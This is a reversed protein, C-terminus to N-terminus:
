QPEKFIGLRQQQAWLVESAAKMDENLEEAGLPEAIADVCRRLDDWFRLALKVDEIPQMCCPFRQLIEQQFSQADGKYELFFRVVIGMCARPLMFTPLLAPTTLHDAKQPTACMFGPPLLKARALDKLLVSALSAEVLQRLTRKLIRVLSHFAALDFDVDANWMDNRLKMPVLSMVRGLLLVAKVRPQVPSTPYEVQPPFPREAQAADFPEGSLVGFKMMELAVLCSEQLNRPTDKLVNGLVTMGGDESSILELNELVMFHVLAALANANNTFSPEGPAQLDTVLQGDNQFEFAHWNLCFKFDVKDCKQRHMEAQVAREDIAWKLGRRISPCLTRVEQEEQPMGHGGQQRAQHADWFAKWTIEKTHFKPHMHRAIMGLATSRYDQIDNLLCRFEATDVLPHSKDTWEGKALAQPLKHSIVGHLMLYYLSNPLKEGMIANFDFPVQPASNASAGLPRIVQDHVHLVPSNQVLVKCTCYGDVHDNKMDETPFTQMWNILPAHKIIYVAADFNFRGPAAPQFHGLNLYPYTLCYETGALMCADVFQNRDIQWKQLVSELDVWDFTTRGFDIHIV